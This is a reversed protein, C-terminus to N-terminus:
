VWLLRPIERWAAVVLGPARPLPRLMPLSDARPAREGGLWPLAAAFPDTPEDAAGEIEDPAAWAVVESLGARAAEDAAAACLRAAVATDSAWWALVIARDNKLDASLLAHGGACALVGHSLPPRRLMGAYIRERARHWAVEAVSPLIAFRGRPPHEALIAAVAADGDTRQVLSGADPAAPVRWEFAPRAVFGIREYMSTGVDTYLTVAQGGLTGLKGVVAQLLKTAYGLGRLLPVTYVSAIQFARGARPGHRCPLEYTELSSLVRRTRDGDEVLVWTRMAERAFPTQRLQEERDAFQGVTLREGWAEHTLEDRARKEADTAEVALVL